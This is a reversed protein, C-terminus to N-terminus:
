ASFGQKTKGDPEVPKDLRVVLKTGNPLTESWVPLAGLLFAFIVVLKSRQSM